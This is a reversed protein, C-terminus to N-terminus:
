HPRKEPSPPKPHSVSLQWKITGNRFVYYGSFFYRLSVLYGDEVPDISNIHYADWAKDQTQGQKRVANHSKVLPIQAPYDYPTWSYLLKNTAIDIEHFQSELLWGNKLGGAASLDVQTVNYATVIMTGHDTIKSEHLDIYSPEPQGSPTVFDGTLKVTHIEKYTNDLIHVAGYGFGLDSMTGSWFTLVQAGNLTQVKV